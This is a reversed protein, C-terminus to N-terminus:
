PCRSQVCPQCSAHGPGSSGSSNSDSLQGQQRPLCASGAGGFSNFGCGWGQRMQFPVRQVCRRPLAHVGIGQQGGDLQPLAALCSLLDPSGEFACCAAATDAGGPSQGCFMITWPTILLLIRTGQLVHHPDVPDCEPCLLSSCHHRMPSM